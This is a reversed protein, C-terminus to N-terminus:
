VWLRNARIWEAGLARCLLLINNNRIRWHSDSSLIVLVTSELSSLFPILSPIIGLYAWVSLYINPPPTSTIDGPTSPLCRGARLSLYVRLTYLHLGLSRLNPIDTVTLLFPLAPTGRTAGNIHSLHWVLCITWNIEISLYNMFRLLLPHTKGDM